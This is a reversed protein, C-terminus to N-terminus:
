GCYLGIVCSRLFVVVRDTGIILSCGTNSILICFQLCGQVARICDQFFASLCILGVCLFFQLLCNLFGALRQRFRRHQDIRKFDPSHRSDEARLFQCEQLILRFCGPFHCFIRFSLNRGDRFHRIKRFLYIFDPCCLFVILVADAHKRVDCLRRVPKYLFPQSPDFCHYLCLRHCRLIVGITKQTFFVTIDSAHIEQILTYVM